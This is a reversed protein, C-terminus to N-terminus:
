LGNRILEARVEAFRRIEYSNRFMDTGADGVNKALHEFNVAANELAAHLTEIKSRLNRIEVLLGEVVEPGPAPLFHRAMEMKEIDM